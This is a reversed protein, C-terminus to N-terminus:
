GQRWVLVAHDSSATALLTRGDPMLVACVGTLYSTHGILPNGVLTGTCPDWLRVMHDDGASALLSQGDPLPV